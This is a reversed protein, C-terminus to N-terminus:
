IYKQFTEKTQKPLYTVPFLTRSGNALLKLEANFALQHHCLM